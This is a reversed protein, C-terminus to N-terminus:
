KAYGVGRLLYAYYWDNASVDSFPSKSYTTKLQQKAGDDPTFSRSQAIMTVAESRKIPAAPRFTGDGYGSIIGSEALYNISAAASSKSDVDTFGADPAEEPIGDFTRAIMVCAEARTIPQNPRFTGDGYGGVLGAQEAYSVYPEYWQNLPVDSFSCAGYNEGPKFEDELSSVLMRLFEARTVNKGPRFTGDEYGSIFPTSVIEPEQDEVPPATEGPKNSADPPNAGHQSDDDPTSSDYVWNMDKDLIETPVLSDSGDSKGLLYNTNNGFSYLSGNSSIGFTSDFCAFVAVYDFSTEKPTEIREQSNQGLQGSIGYGWTYVAGDNSVAFNHQSGASVSRIGTLIKTLGNSAVNRVGTQSFLNSGCTWLSGDSKLLCSHNAGTSIDKVNEAVLVPSLAEPVPQGDKEYGFECSPNAGWGYVSGDEMLALGFLSGLSVKKVGSELIQVPEASAETTGNGLQGCTNQGWTYLAGTDSIYAAFTDSAAVQAADRAVIVGSTGAIEDSLPDWGYARLIGSTNVALTRGTSVAADRVGSLLEVPEPSYVLDSGPFQGQDNAGWFYLKGDSLAATHTSSSWVAIDNQVPRTNAALGNLVVGAALLLALGLCSLIRLRGGPSHKSNQKKM